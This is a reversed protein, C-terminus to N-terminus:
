RRHFHCTLKKVNEWLNRVASPPLRRRSEAAADNCMACSRWRSGSPTPTPAPSLASDVKIFVMVFEFSDSM